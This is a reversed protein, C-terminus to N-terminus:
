SELLQPFLREMYTVIAGDELMESLVIRQGSFNRSKFCVEGEKIEFYAVVENGERNLIGSDQFDRVMLSALTPWFDMEKINLEPALENRKLTKYRTHALMIVVPAINKIEAMLYNYAQYVFNWGNQGLDQLVDKSKVSELQAATYKGFKQEATKKNFGEGQLSNNFLETAKALIIPQFDTIPDVVVFDYYYGDKNKEKAQKFVGELVRLATTNHERRIKDVNVIYGGTQEAGNQLDIHLARKGNRNLGQILTTKGVGAQGTLILLSCKGKVAEIPKDPLLNM